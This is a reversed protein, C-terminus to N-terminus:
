YWGQTEGPGALGLMWTDVSFMIIDKNRAVVSRVRAVGCGCSTHGGVGIQASVFIIAPARVSPM